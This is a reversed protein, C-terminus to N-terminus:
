ENKINNNIRMLELMNYLFYQMTDVTSSFFVKSNEKLVLKAIEGLKFNFYEAIIM